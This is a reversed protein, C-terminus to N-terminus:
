GSVGSAAEETPRLKYGGTFLLLGIALLPGFMVLPVIPERGSEPPPAYFYVLWLAMTQHLVNFGFAGGAYALQAWPLLWGAAPM